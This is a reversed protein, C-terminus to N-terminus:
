GEHSGPDREADISGRSTLGGIVDRLRTEIQDLSSALAARWSPGRNWAETLASALDGGRGTGLLVEFLTSAQARDKDAKRARDGAKRRRAAVILKHVAFREPAPVVVPVGPGHLLVARVPRRLAFDLFRLPEASAGGLAPMNAPRGEHDASSTNPTLFEVLYGEATRFRTSRRGDAPHPLERFTVDVSRLVDLVPPITDGVSTAISHFMAFDVDDTSALGTTFRAGLLGPYAGFAVTGVLVGGLRFFGAEAMAQVVDGARPDPSPLGAETVLASVSSRRARGGGKPGAAGGVRRTVEPDDAPGVYRWGRGDADHYWHRRGRSTVSLFSSGAPFDGAFCDDLCRTMLESYTERFGDDVMRM